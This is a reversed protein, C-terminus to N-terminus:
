STSVTEPLLSKNTYYLMSCLTTKQFCARQHANFHFLYKSPPTIGRILECFPRKSTNECGNSRELPRSTTPWYLDSDSTFLMCLVVLFEVRKLRRVNGRTLVFRVITLRHECYRISFKKRLRSPAQNSDRVPSMTRIPQQFTYQIQSFTQNGNM